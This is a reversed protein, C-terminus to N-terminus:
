VNQQVQLDAEVAQLERKKKNLAAMVIELEAESKALSAKKPAVIKAVKDYKEMALVWKCLGANIGSARSYALPHPSASVTIFECVGVCQSLTLTDTCCIVHVCWCM